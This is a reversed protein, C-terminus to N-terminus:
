VPCFAVQSLPRAPTGVSSSCSEGDLGAAPILKSELTSAVKGVGWSAQQVWNSWAEREFMLPTFFAAGVWFALLALVLGRLPKVAPWVWSVAWLVALVVVQTWVLWSPVVPEAPGAPVFLRLIITPAMSGILIVAWALATLDTRPAEAEQISSPNVTM